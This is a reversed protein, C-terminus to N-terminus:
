SKGQAITRLLSVVNTYDPVYGFPMETTSALVDLAEPLRDAIDQHPSVGDIAGVISIIEDLALGSTYTPSHVLGYAVYRASNYNDARVASGQCPSRGLWRLDDSLKM